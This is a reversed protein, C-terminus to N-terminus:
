TGARTRRKVPKGAVPTFSRAHGYSPNAFCRRCVSRSGDGTPFWSGATFAAGDVLLVRVASDREAAVIAAAFAAYMASTLANKKEPRNMRIRQVAGDRSLEIQSM